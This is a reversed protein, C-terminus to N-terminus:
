FTQRELVKGCQCVMGVRILVSDSKREAFAPHVFAHEHTRVLRPLNLRVPRAFEDVDVPFPATQLNTSM